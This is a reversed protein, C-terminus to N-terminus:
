NYSSQGAVFKNMKTLIEQKKKTLQDVKNKMKLKKLAKEQKKIGQNKIKFEDYKM